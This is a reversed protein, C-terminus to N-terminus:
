ARAENIHRVCEAIAITSDNLAYWCIRILRMNDAQVASTLLARLQKRSVNKVTTSRQRAM